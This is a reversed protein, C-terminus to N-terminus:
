RIRMLQASSGAGALMASYIVLGALDTGTYRWAYILPVAAVAAWWGAGARWLKGVGFLLYRPLGFFVVMPLWVWLLREVGPIWELGVDRLTRSAFGAAGLMWTGSLLLGIMTKGRLCEVACTALAVSVLWPQIALIGGHNAELLDWRLWLGAIFGAVAKAGAVIVVALGIRCPLRNLGTFDRAGIWEFLRLYGLILPFFVAFAIVATIIFDSLPM